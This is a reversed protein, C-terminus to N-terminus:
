RSMSYVLVFVVVGGLLAALAVLTKQKKLAREEETLPRIEDQHKKESALGLAAGLAVGIGMGLAINNLAVGVGLGIAIGAGLGRDRFYGAPYGPNRKRIERQKRAMIFAFAGIILVMAALLVMILYANEM